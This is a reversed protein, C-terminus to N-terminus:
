SQPEGGNAQLVRLAREGPLCGVVRHYPELGPVVVKVVPVGFEPKSLDVVIAQTLGVAALRELILKVDEEFTANQYTPGSSFSRRGSIRLRKLVDPFTGPHQSREYWPRNNDDRSGAILTLRAQAAETLARLLAIERSPHCGMGEMPPLKRFPNPCGDMIVCRFTPIGVDSTMEWAAAILGAREFLSLVHCCDPDDVTGLDLRHDDQREPGYLRFLSAADREIVECLGHSVAELAHNGSALGNSSVVFCGAGPPLPLTLNMHVLEFPLTVPLSSVLDIGEIWLMTRSPHFLGLSLRPLKEIPAVTHSFRLENLSALRVPQTIHEAHFLEVAEMIGSASAADWDIGKGQTVSLSRGNPRVVMAVAVGICDLGTVNAVRTIGLPPFMRRMRSVTERPSVLRHTGRIHGKGTGPLPGSSGPRASGAHAVPVAQISVEM